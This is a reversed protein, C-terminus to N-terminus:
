FRFFIRNPDISVRNKRNTPKRNPFQRQNEVGTDSTPLCLGKIAEDAEVLGLEAAKLLDANAQDRRNLKLYSLGRLYWSNELYPNLGIAKTMSDICKEYEGLGFYGSGKTDLTNSDDPRLLLSKDAYEVCLEYEKLFYYNWGMNNFIMASDMSGPLPKFLRLLQEYDSNSGGFDKMEQKIFARFSLAPRNNTDKELERNLEDYALDYHKRSSYISARLLNPQFISGNKGNSMRIVKNLYDLAKATDASFELEGMIVFYYNNLRVSDKEVAEKFCQYAKDPKNEEKFRIGDLMLQDTEDPKKALIEKRLLGYPTSRQYNDKWAKELKSNLRNIQKDLLAYNVNNECYVKLEGYITDIESVYASDTNGTRSGEIWKMMYVIRSLNWAHKGCYISTTDQQNYLPRGNARQGM